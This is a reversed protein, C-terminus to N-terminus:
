SAREPSVWAGGTDVKRFLKKYDKLCRLISVLQVANMIYFAFYMIPAYLSLRAKAKWGLHEDPWLTWLVYLTIVIYAWFISMPNQNLISLYVIYALLLPEVLLVFESFVALPLRYITLMRSYMVDNSGIMNGYKIINQLMGLKWRYRQRFLAKYTQVGQTMALVDSAYIIKQYLNGRSMLKLSLGIDETQTDTDYFGVAKIVERRYTSAVGGIIFESNTLTYFKKSRYGIMHEFKQVLSLISGDDVVQVNAALGVLGPDSEFHRVANKIADKAITSDADLTMVLEGKAMRRLAHNMAEGKGVNTQKRLLHINRTPYKQIYHWVLSRTSDTSADDVVIIQLKRYSSKRVSDLTKIIGKEENHAPIIVSVLPRKSRKSVAAQQRKKFINLFDYINAGAIYMGFHITNIIAIVAFTYFVIDKLM